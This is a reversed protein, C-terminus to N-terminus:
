AARRDGHISAHARQQGGRTRGCAQPHRGGHGGGQLSLAHSRQRERMSVAVATARKAPVACLQRPEQNDELLIQRPSRHLTVKCFRARAQEHSKLTDLSRSIGYAAGRARVWVSSDQSVLLLESHGGRTSFNKSALANGDFALANAISALAKADFCGSALVNADVGGAKINLTTAQKELNPERARTEQRVCKRSPLCFGQRLNGLVDPWLVPEFRMIRIQCGRM